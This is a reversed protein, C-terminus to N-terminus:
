DMYKRIKEIIKRAPESIEVARNNLYLEAEKEGKKPDQKEITLAKIATYYPSLEIDYGKEELIDLLWSGYDLDIVVAGFKAWWYNNAITSISGKNEFTQLLYEKASGKNQKHLEFLTKNLYYLSKNNEDIKMEKEIENSLKEAKNIENLKDRYIFLLHFKDLLNQPNIAMSKEYAIAAEKNKKLEILAYGKNGLAFAYDSKLVITKDFYKIANNFDEKYIYYNGMCYYADAYNPNLEIAKKFCEMAKDFEEKKAYALGMNNHTIANNPNLKISEKFCKISKDFEQRDGYNCGVNFYAEADPSDFEKNLEENNLFAEVIKEKMKNKKKSDLTEVRSLALNLRMDEFSCIDRMLLDDSIRELDDKGYFCELFKSLCYIRDKHRRSCNRILYYINFFRESIFYANGKDEYAPTTEIWGNDILRKLQPSLQNNEMRTEAALNKLSIADWNLAIADLIARQQQPLEEFKAKYLPTLTDVLINLDDDINTSFDKSVQEFLAVTVRPNGGTLEHLAKQRSINPKIDTGNLKALNNLLEMFEEYNLKRLYQIKFFDYFPMKYEATDDTTNVGGGIIIPASNESLLKRLAWQESQNKVGGSNLGSFVIDINDVLLVPRRNLERCNSMLFKYTEQSIIESTKKSLEKITKDINDIRQTHEKKNETKDEYQLSDALADLSNLWFEALDRVNYQEERFLLPIFKQRYEEKHLEVEMRKLMTTKGMGRQGIILHHQAISNEKEKKIDNLLFNFEKQRVAFLKEIMEADQLQPNYLLRTQSLNTNEM